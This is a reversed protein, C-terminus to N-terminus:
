GVFKWQKIGVSLELICRHSIYYKYLLSKKIRGDRGYKNASIRIYLNRKRGRETEGQNEM